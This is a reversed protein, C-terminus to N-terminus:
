LVMLTSHAPRAVARALGGRCPLLTARPPAAARPVAAALPRRRSVRSREESFGERAASRGGVVPSRSPPPRLRGLTGSGPFIRPGPPRCAAKKIHLTRGRTRAGSRRPPPPPPQQNASKIQSDKPPQQPSCAPTCPVPHTPNARSIPTKLSALFLGPLLNKQQQRAELPHSSWCVRGHSPRTSKLRIGLALHPKKKRGPPGDQSPFPWCFHGFYLPSILVFSRRVCQGTILDALPM